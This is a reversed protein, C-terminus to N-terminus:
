LKGTSASYSRRTSSPFLQFLLETPPRRGGGVDHDRYIALRDRHHRDRSRSPRTADGSLLLLLGSLTLRLLALLLPLCSLPLSHVLEEVM